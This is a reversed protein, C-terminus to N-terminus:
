QQKSANKGGIFHVIIGAMIFVAGFIYGGPSVYSNFFLSPLLALLLGISFGTIVLYTMAMTVKLNKNMLFSLDRLGTSVLRVVMSSKGNSLDNFLAIACLVCILYKDAKNNRTLINSAALGIGGSILFLKLTVMKSKLIIQKIIKATQGYKEKVQSLEGRRVKQILPMFTRSIVTIFAAKGIFGNYTATLFILLWALTGLPGPLSSIKMTPYTWLVFWLILLPGLWIADKVLRRPLAKFNVAVIGKLLSFFSQPPLADANGESPVGPSDKLDDKSDEPDPIYRTIIKPPTPVSKFSKKEALEIM